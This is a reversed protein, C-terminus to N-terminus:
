HVDPDEIDSPQKEKQETFKRDLLEFTMWDFEANGYCASFSRKGLHSVKDRTWPGENQKRGNEAGRIAEHSLASWHADLVDRFHARAAVDAHLRRVRGAAAISLRQHSTLSSLSCVLCALISFVCRGFARYGALFIYRIVSLISGFHESKTLFFTKAM